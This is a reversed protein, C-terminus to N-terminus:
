RRSVVLASRPLRRELDDAEVKVLAGLEEDFVGQNRGALAYLERSLEWTLRARQDLPVRLWYLDDDEDHGGHM